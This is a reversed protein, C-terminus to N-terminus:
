SAKENRNRWTDLWNSFFPKSAVNAAESQKCGSNWPISRSAITLGRSRSLPASNFTFPEDTGGPLVERLAWDIHQVCDEVLNMADAESQQNVFMLPQLANRIHHNMLDIVRLHAIIRRMRHREYLYSISGAILGGLLDDWVRQSQGDGWHISLRDAAILLCSVLIFLLVAKLVSSRWLKKLDLFNM